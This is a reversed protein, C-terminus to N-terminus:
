TQGGRALGQSTVGQSDRAGGLEVKQLRHSSLSLTLSGSPLLSSCVGASPGATDVLTKLLWGLGAPRGM